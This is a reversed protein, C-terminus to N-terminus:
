ATAELPVALNDGPWFVSLGPASTPIQPKHMNAYPQQLTPYTLGEM